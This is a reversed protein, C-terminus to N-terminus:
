NCQFCNVWQMSGSTRHRAQIVSLLRRVLQELQM